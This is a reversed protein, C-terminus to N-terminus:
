ICRKSWYKQWEERESKEEFQVFFTVTVVKPVDLTVWEEFADGDYNTKPKLCYKNCHHIVEEMTGFISNSTTFKM